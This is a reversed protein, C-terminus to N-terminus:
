PQTVPMTTPFIQQTTTPETTPQSQPAKVSPSDIRELPQLLVYAFRSRMLADKDEWQVNRWRNADDTLPFPDPLDWQSVPVLYDQDGTYSYVNRVHIHHYGGSDGMWVAEDPVAQSESRSLRGVVQERSAEQACGVLFLAAVPLLIRFFSNCQM